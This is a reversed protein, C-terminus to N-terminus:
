PNRAQAEVILEIREIEEDMSYVTLSFNRTENPKLESQSEWRRVGVVEGQDNYAVALIWVLSAPRLEDPNTILGTVQAIRQNESFQYKVQNISLTIYRTDDVKVPFFTDVVFFLDYDEPVPAPIYVVIPVASEAPLLNLPMIGSVQINQGSNNDQLTLIGGVNEVPTLNNNEILIFCYLGELGDPYCIPDHQKSYLATATPSLMRTPTASAGAQPTIPILLVTGIGMFYPNVTPNATKLAELSIGYRLAIGFMDDNERVNYYVPTTTPTITPSSTPSKYDDPASTPTITDTPYPRLTGTSISTLTSIQAAPKSCASLIMVIIIM